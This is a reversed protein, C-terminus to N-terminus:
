KFKVFFHTLYCTHHMLPRRRHYGIFTSCGTQSVPFRHQSTIQHFVIFTSCLPSKCLAEAKDVENGEKDFHPKSQALLLLSVIRLMLFYRYICLFVCCLAFNEFSSWFSFFAAWFSLFSRTDRFVSTVAGIALCLSEKMEMTEIGSRWLTGWFFYDSSCPLWYLTRWTQQADLRRHGQRPSMRSASSQANKKRM